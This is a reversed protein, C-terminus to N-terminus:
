VNLPPTRVIFGRAFTLGRLGPAELEGPGRESIGSSVLAAIPGAWARAHKKVLALERKEGAETGRGAARQLQLQIFEGRPDGLGLLYDAYIARAPDSAPDAYVAALLDPGDTAAVVEGDLEALEEKTLRRAQALRKALNAIRSRTAPLADRPQVAQLPAICSPDGHREVTDLLRRWLKASTHPLNTFDRLLSLALRGVRPDPPLEAILEVVPWSARATRVVHDIAPILSAVQVDRSGLAELLKPLGLAVPAAVRDMEVVLDGLKPDRTERWRELVAALQM